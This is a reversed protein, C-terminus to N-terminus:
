SHREGGVGVRRDGDPRPLDDGAVLRGRRVEVRDDGVAEAARRAEVHGPVLRALPGVGAQAARDAVVRQHEVHRLVDVADVEPGLRRRELAGLLEGGLRVAGRARPEEGVAGRLAVVRQAERQRRQPRREDHLAVRV